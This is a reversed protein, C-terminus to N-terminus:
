LRNPMLSCILILLCIRHAHALMLADLISNSKKDCLNDSVFSFGGALCLFLPFSLSPFFFAFCFVRSYFSVSFIMFHQASHNAPSEILSILGHQYGIMQLLISIIYNLINNKMKKKNIERQKHGSEIQIKWVYYKFVCMANFRASSHCSWVRWVKYQSHFFLFFFIFIFIHHFFVAM